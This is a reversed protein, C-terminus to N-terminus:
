TAFEELYRKMRLKRLASESTMYRITGFIPREFWPRDYRGLVWFIGSYSNPNRGDLAYRNNLEIMAALAEEPSRSWELIKKGWLMRMYNHIRGERLLQRQSANWVRDYTRAAALEELTYLQPRPDGEHKRLTDIAWGPLSAFKDYDRRLACMNYGLERWTVFQDLFAEAAPSMGWFGERGGAADESLRDLKWRERRALRAFVDHPSVHGFHLYPSLGSQADADPHDREDPYRELIEGLFRAAAREGAEPGGAFSVPPVGHDIPLAGLAVQDGELLAAPAAPWRRTIEPPLAPLAALAPLGAGKLPDAAPFDELHPRLNRQLFLRFSRATPHAREAARLPLLGNSDVQELLVSVQRAAASVMRPLFFCPFEDTVVVAARAALAELLGKGHGAAPEVYPHYLVGAAAFRRANDAMGDLVFRHLRASAWPHGARLAELVVLPRGLRRAWEAARQLGFNYRSRRAAIMWYLVYDGDERAPHVNAARIRIEPVSKL